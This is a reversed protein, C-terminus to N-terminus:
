GLELSDFGGQSDNASDAGNSVEDDLEPLTRCKLATFGVFFKYSCDLLETVCRWLHADRLKRM